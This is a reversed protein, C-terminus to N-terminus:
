KSELSNTDYKLSCKQCVSKTVRGGCRGCKNGHVVFFTKKRPKSRDLNGFVNFVGTPIVLIKGCSPCHDPCNKTIKWGCASCKGDHIVVSLGTNYM